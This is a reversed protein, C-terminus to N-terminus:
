EYAAPLLGLSKIFRRQLTPDSSVRQYHPLAYILPSEREAFGLNRFVEHNAPTPEYMFFIGHEDLTLYHEKAPDKVTLQHAGDAFVFFENAKVAAIFADRRRLGCYRTWLPEGDDARGADTKLLIELPDPLLEVTAFFASKFQAPDDTWAALRNFKEFKQEFYFPTATYDPAWAKIANGTPEQM